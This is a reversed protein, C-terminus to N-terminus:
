GIVRKVISGRCDGTKAHAPRAESASRRGKVGVGERWNRISDAVGSDIHNCQHNHEDIVVIQHRHRSKAPVAALVVKWQPLVAWILHIAASNVPVQCLQM